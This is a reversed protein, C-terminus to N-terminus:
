RYATNGCVPFATQLQLRGKKIRNHPIAPVPMVSEGSGVSEIRPRKGPESLFSKALVYGFPLVLRLPYARSNKNNVSEQKGLKTM